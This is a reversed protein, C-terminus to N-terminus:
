KRGYYALVLKKLAKDKIRYIQSREVGIKESIIEIYDWTRQIYFHHLVTRERLDLFQFCYELDALFERNAAYTRELRNLTQQQTLGASTVVDGRHSIKDKLGDIQRRLVPQMEKITGYDMLQKQMAHKYM